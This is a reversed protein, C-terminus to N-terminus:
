GARIVDLDGVNLRPFRMLGFDDLHPKHPFLTGPINMHERPLRMQHTPGPHLTEIEVGNVAVREHLEFGLQYLRVAAVPRIEIVHIGDVLDAVPVFAGERSLRRRIADSAHFTRAYSGLVLDPMPHGAGFSDTAIRLLGLGSDIQGPVLNISGKWILPQFGNDVTKVMDGPLLDEVALMGQDTAVVGGRAIAGFCSEFTPNAPALITLDEIQNDKTLHAVEYKRMLPQNRQPRGDKRAFRGGQAPFDFQSNADFAGVRPYSNMICVLGILRRGAGVLSM